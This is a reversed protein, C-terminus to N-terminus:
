FVKIVIFFCNSFLIAKIVPLEWPCPSASALSKTSLPAWTIKTSILSFFPLFSSFSNPGEDFNKLHNLLNSFLETNFELLVISKKSNRDDFFGKAKDIPDAKDIAEFVFFLVVWAVVVFVVIFLTPAEDKKEM